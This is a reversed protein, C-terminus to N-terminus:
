RRKFYVVGGRKEDDERSTCNKPAQIGITRAMSDPEREPFKETLIKLIESKSAGRDRSITAIITAIVGPAKAAGTSSVKKAATKKAMEIEQPQSRANRDRGRNEVPSQIKASFNHSRGGSILHRPRWDIGDSDIIPEPEPAKPKPKIDPINFRYALM